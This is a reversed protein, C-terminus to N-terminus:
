ADYKTLENAKITSLIKDAYDPDTAYVDALASVFQEIDHTANWIGYPYDYKEDQSILVCWDDCAQYLSDYDQFKAVTDVYEGDIYEQTSVEIYNGWGGWKRGFLNYEGIISTGWGSELIGQAILVSAPLKFFASKNMAAPALWGIFEEPMMNNVKM